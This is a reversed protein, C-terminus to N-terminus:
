PLGTESMSAGAKQPGSSQAWHWAFPLLVPLEVQPKPCLPFCANGPWSVSREGWGYLRWAHVEVSTGGGSWVAETWIGEDIVEGVVCM